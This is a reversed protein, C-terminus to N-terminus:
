FRGAVLVGTPTPALQVRPVSMPRGKAPPTRATVVLDIVSLVAGAAGVGVLAYGAYVRQELPTVDGAVCGADCRQSLEPFNLRADVLLGTGAAATALSLSAAVLPALLSTRPSVDQVALRHLALPDTETAAPLSADTEDLSWEDARAAGETFSAFHLLALGIAM